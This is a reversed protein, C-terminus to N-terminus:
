FKVFLFCFSSYDLDAVLAKLSLILKLVLQPVRFEMEKPNRLM